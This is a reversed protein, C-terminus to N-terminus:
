ESHAIAPRRAGVRTSQEFAYGLQLVGLDDHPRGVIQIGIPLGGSSFAAPVSLAPNGVTSIYYASKMWAVYNEMAVGAISTPYAVSVDFPLVQNVPLVFFDYREFFRQVRAYLEVRKQELRAMYASTLRRGIEVHWRVFENFEDPHSEFSAGFKAEIMAHRFKVFVENADRFDPEDDDVRCGLSEFVARQARIAAHVEPEWPLGLDRFMAVRVGRLDRGLLRHYAPAPGDLAIPSQACFGAQASLLLAVDRVSRALPGTVALTDYGRDAVRGPSPRLGVVNNFNPPNRLSGGLDSGDALAIMGCALAAAGGGTSGGASKSLDYPNRTAGFVRNLTNSGLSFEPVNTKGVVIAGAAKERRVVYDDAFPVHHKYIPSGFTTRIGQTEFADKVGLPLGHLPGLEDGRAVAADAADAQALLADADVLTVIANVHPNVREIHALHAAMTERASIRRTRIAHALDVADSFCIGAAADLQASM